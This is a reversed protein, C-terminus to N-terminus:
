ETMDVGVGLEALAENRGILDGNATAKARAEQELDEMAWRVATEIDPQGPGHREYEPGREYAIEAVRLLIEATLGKVASATSRFRHMRYVTGRMGERDYEAHCDEEYPWDESGKPVLPGMLKTDRILEPSLITELPHDFIREVEGANGVLGDLVSNETLLAVVPTVLLRYQSIFPELLCLTHIHPSDLPLNVEENAERYATFVASGDTADCRGGPLATQGPHSRLSKDRTTLLVRLHGNRLYLLVLVAARRSLPFNILVNGQPKLKYFMLREAMGRLPEAVTALDLPPRASM